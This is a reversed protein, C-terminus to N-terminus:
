CALVRKAIEDLCDKAQEQTGLHDMFAHDMGEYFIEEPEVGAKTLKEAFLRNCPLYYDFEAEIMLTPPMRDLNPSYLPSVLEDKIDTGEPVYAKKMDVALKKFRLLRNRIIREQDKNMRYLSYDWHYDSLDAIELDFAGYLLYALGFLGSRQLCCAVSLNAGASDGGVIIKGPNLEKIWDVVALCDEIAKPFMCEPSLRYAPAFVTAQSKEALYACQGDKDELMGGIFGGGHIFIVAKGSRTEPEYVRVPIYHDRVFVNRTSISVNGEHIFKGKTAGSRAKLFDIEEVSPDYREYFDEAIAKQSEREYVPRDLAFEKTEILKKKITKM